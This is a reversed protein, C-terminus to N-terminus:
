QILLSATEFSGQLAMELTAALRLGGALLRQKVVPLRSRHYASTLTTGDGIERGDVNRYAWRIANDFSEQGWASTCRQSAGNACNLWMKWYKANEKVQMWDWLHEELHFRTDNFDEKLCKEIIGEDWVAHLNKPNKYYRRRLQVKEVAAERRSSRQAMSQEDFTVHISNGGRDSKRSAHLPQHIDGVFHVLFKLSDRLLVSSENTDHNAYNRAISHKYRILLGTYNVIAGAVCEDEPCDRAYDFRCSSSFIDGDGAPCGTSVLDDRVDIFHLPASWHYDHTYRVKDAWDAIWALPSCDPCLSSKSDGIAQLSDTSNIRLISTVQSKTNNSLLRWALNAVIEHGQKGWAHVGVNATPGFFLIILVLLLGLRFKLSRPKISVNM